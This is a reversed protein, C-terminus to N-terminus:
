PLLQFQGTRRLFNVRAYYFNKNLTFTNPAVKTFRTDQRLRGAIVDYPEVSETKWNHKRMYNYIDGIYLASNLNKVFLAMCHDVIRLTQKKSM